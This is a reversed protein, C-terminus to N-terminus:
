SKVRIWMKAMDICAQKPSDKMVACRALVEDTPFLLDIYMDGFDEGSASYM